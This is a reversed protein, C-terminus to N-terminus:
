LTIVTNNVIESITCKMGTLRTKFKSKTIKNVADQIATAQEESVENESVLYMALTITSKSAEENTDDIAEDTTKQSCGALCGSLLMLLSLILCILRKNM